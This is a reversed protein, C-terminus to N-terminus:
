GQDEVQARVQALVAEAKQLLGRYKNAVDRESYYRLALHEQFRSDRLMEAYARKRADAAPNQSHLVMVRGAYERAFAFYHEESWSETYQGSVQAAFEALAARLAEDRILTLGGSNVLAEYAGMVPEFRASNFVQNVLEELSATQGPQQGRAHKLLEQSSSMVAEEKAILKKLSGINQQLDSALARLHVQEQAAKERGDWWAELAFAILIGVTVIAIEGLPRAVVMWPRRAVGGSDGARASM